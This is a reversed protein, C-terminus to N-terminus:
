LPEDSHSVRSSRWRQIHDTTLHHARRRSLMHLMLGNGGHTAVVDVLDISVCVETTPREGQFPIQSQGPPDAIRAENAAPRQGCLIIDSRPRPLALLIAFPHVLRLGRSPLAVQKM